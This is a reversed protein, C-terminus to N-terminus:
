NVDKSKYRRVRSKYFPSDTELTYRKRLYEELIEARFDIGLWNQSGPGHGTIVWITGNLPPTESLAEEIDSEDHLVQDNMDYAVFDEAQPLPVLVNQGTYYYAIPLATEATFILIPQGIEEHSEIHRAVRQWDGPKALPKYLDILAMCASSTAICTWAAVAWWRPRGTMLHIVGFVSLQVLLFLASTHHPLAASPTMTHAVVVFVTFLFSASVSIAIHLPTIAHRCKIVIAAIPAVLIIPIILKRTPTMEVFPVGQVPWAYRMVRQVMYKVSDAWSNPSSLDATHMRVQNLVAVAEPIYCLGVVVMTSLYIALPRWRRLALLAAANAVLIFGLYQFTYLAVVSLVGYAIATSRSPTKIAFGEVFSLTLLSSFLLLLASVRLECSAYVTLPHFAIPLIIWGPHIGPLVRKAVGASVFLALVSFLVSLMRGWFASENVCRWVWLLSFYVPPQGEFHRAQHLTEPFTGSTAALSYGEDTWISLIASLAIALLAHAAIIAPVVFRSGGAPVNTV